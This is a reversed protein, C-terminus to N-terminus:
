QYSLVAWKLFYPNSLRQHMHEFVSVSGHILQRNWIQVIVADGSIYLHMIGAVESARERQSNLLNIVRNYEVLNAVWCFM